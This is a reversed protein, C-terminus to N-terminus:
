WHLSLQYGAGPLEVEEQVDQRLAGVAVVLQLGDEAQDIAGVAHPMAGRSSPSIRKGPREALVVQANARRPQQLLV